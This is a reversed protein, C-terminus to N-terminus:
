GQRSEKSNIIQPSDPRNWVGVTKPPNLKGANMKGTAGGYIIITMTITLLFFTMKPFTKMMTMEKNTIGHKTSFIGFLV